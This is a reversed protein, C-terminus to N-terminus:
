SARFESCARFFCLKNPVSRYCVSLQHVGGTSDLAWLTDCQGASLAVVVQGRPGPVEQWARGVWDTEELGLRRYLRGGPALVWVSHRSVELWAAALGSVAVWGTGCPLEPYVAERVWVGGVRDRAWVRDGSPSSAVQVLSCPEGEVRLWAPAVHSPPPELGGLRLWSGGETDIAWAQPLCLPSPRSLGVWVTSTRSNFKQDTKRFRTM